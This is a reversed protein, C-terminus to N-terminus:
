SCPLKPPKMGCIASGRKSPSRSALATKPCVSDFCRRIDAKCGVFDVRSRKAARIDEYLLEHVDM